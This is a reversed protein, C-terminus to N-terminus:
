KADAEVKEEKGKGRGKKPMVWIPCPNEIILFHLCINLFMLDGWFAHEDHTQPFFYFLYFVLFVFLQGFM